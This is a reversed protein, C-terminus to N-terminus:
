SGSAELKLKRLALCFIRSVKTQRCFEKKSLGFIGDFGILAFELLFNLFFHHFNFDLLILHASTPKEFFFRSGIEQL